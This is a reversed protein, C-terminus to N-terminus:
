YTTKEVSLKKLTFDPSVTEVLIRINLRTKDDRIEDHDFAVFLNPAQSPLLQANGLINPHQQLVARCEPSAEAYARARAFIGADQSPTTCGFAILSVLLALILRNM